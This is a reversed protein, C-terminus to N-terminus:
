PAIQSHEHTRSYSRRFHVSKSSIQLVRLVNNPAPGPLHQARDACYRCNSLCCFKTNKNPLYRVFEGIERRDFKVFNSCLSTSRHGSSFKQFLIKFIKGYPTTKGLFVCVNTVSIWRRRSRAAMVVCYNCIAWFESGFSGVIPHRTEM